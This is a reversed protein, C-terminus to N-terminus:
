YIQLVKKFCPRSFFLVTISPSCCLDHLEESHLRTWDGTIDEGKAGCVKRLVGNEFVRVWESVEM